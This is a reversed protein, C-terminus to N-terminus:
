QANTITSNLLNKNVKEIEEIFERVVTTEINGYLYSM